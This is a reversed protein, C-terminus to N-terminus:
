EEYVASPSDASKDSKVKNIEISKTLPLQSDNVDEKNKSLKSFKVTVSKSDIKIKEAIQHCFDSYMRSDVDHLSELINDRNQDELYKVKAQVLVGHMIHQIYIVEVQTLEVRLAQSIAESLLFNSHVHYKQVVDEKESKVTFVMYVTGSKDGRTVEICGNCIRVSVTLVGFLVGLISFTMALLTISMGNSVLDNDSSTLYLYQIYLCPVNELVVNNIIKMNMLRAKTDVGIQFSMVDLHFLHSSLMDIAAYFGAVLSLLVIVKDFRSAYESLFRKSRTQRWKTIFFLGVVISLFHPGLTFLASWQYLDNNAAYLTLTFLVDTYFDGIASFFKLLAVYGPRDSGNRKRHFLFAIVGILFPFGVVFAVISYGSVSYSDVGPADDVDQETTDPEFEETVVVTLHLAKTTYCDAIAVYYGTDFLPDCDSQAEDLFTNSIEGYISCEDNFDYVWAYVYYSDDNSHYYHNCHFLDHHEHNGYAACVSDAVFISKRESRICHATSFVNLEMYTSEVADCRFQPYMQSANVAYLVKSDVVIQDHSCNMDQYLTHSATEDDICEFKIYIDVDNITYHMCKGIAAPFAFGDIGFANHMAYNTTINRRWTYSTPRLTPSDSPASTPPTTPTVSPTHSPATSPAGSPAESPFFSPSFSPAISPPQTPASSPSFSPAVSPANTPSTSPANSPLFTCGRKYEYEAVGHNTASDEVTRKTGNVFLNCTDEHGHTACCLDAYSCGALSSCQLDCQASTFACDVQLEGCGSICNVSATNASAIGDFVFTAGLCSNSGLGNDCTINVEVSTDNGTVYIEMDRCMSEGICTVKTNTYSHIVMEYCHTDGDGICEVDCVNNPGLCTYHSPTYRNKSDYTDDGNCILKCDSHTDDCVLTNNCPYTSNCTAFIASIPKSSLIFVTFLLNCSRRWM